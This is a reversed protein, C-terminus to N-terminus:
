LDRREIERYALTQMLSSEDRFLSYANINMSDLKALFRDRESAPIVYKTLLDQEVVAGGLAEEHNCYLYKEGDPKKCITYESQQAYHREHTVVYPGLGIIRAGNGDFAKGEGLYEVYAYIAVGDCGEPPRPAFAFFAALYPSRSWDLLPSPFGHHRLYIMFDYGPPPGHYSEDVDLDPDISWANEILSAVAPMVSVLIRYYENISRPKKSFRELTTLLRWRKDAHGRFLYGSVYTKASARRKELSEFIRAMEGEFTEWDKLLVEKVDPM